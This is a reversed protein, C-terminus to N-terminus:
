FRISVLPSIFGRSKRLPPVHLCWSGCAAPKEEKNAEMLSIEAGGGHKQEITAVILCTRGHEGSRILHFMVAIKSENRRGREGSLPANLHRWKLPQQPTHTQTYVCTNRPQLVGSLVFEGGEIM